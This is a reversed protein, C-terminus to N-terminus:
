RGRLHLRALENLQMYYEPDKRRVMDLATGQGDIRVQEADVVAQTTATTGDSLAERIRDHPWELARAVQALTLPRFQERPCVEILNWTTLSLAAREAAQQQTFGLEMRRDRILKRVPGWSSDPM